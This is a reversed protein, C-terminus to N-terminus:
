GSCSLDNQSPHIGRMAYGSPCVHMAFGEICPQTFPKGLVVENFPCALGIMVRYAASSGSSMVFEPAHTRVATIGSIMLLGIGVLLPIRLRAKRVQRAPVAVARSAIMALGADGRLSRPPIAVRFSDLEIPYM